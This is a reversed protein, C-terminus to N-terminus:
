ARALIITELSTPRSARLMLMAAAEAVLWFDAQIESTAIARHAGVVHRWRDAVVAAPLGVALLVGISLRGLRAM